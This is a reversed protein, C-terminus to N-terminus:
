TRRAIQKQFAFFARKSAKEEAKKKSTARAKSVVKNNISLKVSFHKLEDRGTDEYVEYDFTNKEKQCWEILLSKYSIVKGELTEIDVHPNIVREYIFRECFKYGKDLYIAGVLAEFLNGHINNGFNSKPIKSKVLGILNLEKGLENLHERSVVKSRMKTLYGEDGHPVQEFLYAAIVASLMADGVFELREYNIANGDNDKINMSRHTFAKIYLSKSKPKYGLIEKLNLFFNGDENSRSNLINRILSM